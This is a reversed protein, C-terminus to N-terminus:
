KLTSRKATKSDDFSLEFYSHKSNRKLIDKSLVTACKLEKTVTTFKTPAVPRVKHKRAGMVFASAFNEEADKLFYDILNSLEIPLHGVYNRDKKFVGVAHKDYSLVEEREDTKSDPKRNIM